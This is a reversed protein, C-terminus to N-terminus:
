KAKRTNRFLLYAAYNERQKKYTMKKKQLYGDVRYMKALRDLHSIDVRDAAWLVGVERYALGAHELKKLASKVTNRSRGTLKAIETITIAWGNRLLAEYVAEASPGLAGRSWIDHNVPLNMKNDM